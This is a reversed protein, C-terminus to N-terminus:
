GVEPRPEDPTPGAPAVKAAIAQRDSFPISNYVQEFLTQLQARTTELSKNLIEVNAQLKEREAIQEAFEHKIEPSNLLTLPNSAARMDAIIEVISNQQRSVMESYAARAVDLVALLQKVSDAPGKYQTIFAAFKAKESPTNISNLKSLSVEVKERVGSIDPLSAFKDAMQATKSNILTFEKIAKVIPDTDPLDLANLLAKNLHVLIKATSGISKLSPIGATDANGTQPSKPDLPM